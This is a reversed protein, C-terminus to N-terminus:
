KVLKLLTERDANAANTGSDFMEDAWHEDYMLFDKPYSLKRDSEGIHIIDLNKPWKWVFPFKCYHKWSLNLFVKKSNEFRNPIVTCIGGDLAKRGRFDAFFKPDILYPINCSAIVTECMDADDFFESVIERRPIGFRNFTTIAVHM